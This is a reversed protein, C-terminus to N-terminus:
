TPQLAATIQLPVPSEGNVGYITGGVHSVAMEARDQMALWSEHIM